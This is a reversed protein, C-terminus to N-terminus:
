KLLELVQNTIDVLPFQTRNGALTGPVKEDLFFETVSYLSGGIEVNDVSFGNRSAYVNPVTGVMEASTWLRDASRLIATGDTTDSVLLVTGNFQKPLLIGDLSNGIRTVNSGKLPVHIKHGMEETMNFRYLQGDSGDTGLLIDGRAALGSLGPVTQNPQPQLYWPIATSGNPGVKIISAPFTGVVFTNGHADHAADQYGGYVGNTVETLNKRWLVQGHRPDVKVLFNDGSIDQGQTDFAAGADVIVSLQGQPDVVVGSMHLVPDGSLGPLHINDVVERKYPDYVAVTSNYLASLYVLCDDENFDAHEPYLQYANVTINGTLTPCGAKTAGSSPTSVSPADNGSPSHNGLNGLVDAGQIHHIGPSYIPTNNYSRLRGSRFASAPIRAHTPALNCGLLLISFIFSQLSERM